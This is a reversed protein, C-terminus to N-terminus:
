IDTSYMNLLEGYDGILEYCRPVHLIDRVFAYKLPIDFSFM